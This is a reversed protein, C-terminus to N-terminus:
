RRKLYVLNLIELIYKNKSSGLNMNLMQNFDCDYAYGRYDISILKKCM